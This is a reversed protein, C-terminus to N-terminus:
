TYLDMSCNVNGQFLFCSKIHAHVADGQRTTPERVLITGLQKCAGVWVCM